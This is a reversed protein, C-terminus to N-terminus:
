SAKGQVAAPDVNASTPPNLVAPPATTNEQTLKTLDSIGTLSAGTIKM